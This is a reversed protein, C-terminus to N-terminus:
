SDRQLVKHTFMVICNEIIGDCVKKKVLISIYSRYGGKLISIPFTSLSCLSSVIRWAVNLQRLWSVISKKGQFIGAGNKICKGVKAAFSSPTRCVIVLVTRIQGM